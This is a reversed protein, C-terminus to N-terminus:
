FRGADAYKIGVFAYIDENMYGRLKGGKVQVIPPNLLSPKADAEAFDAAAPMVSIFCFLSLIVAFKKM